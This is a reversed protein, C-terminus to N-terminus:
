LLLQDIKAACIFDNKTLGNVAHTTFHIICYDYGAEITPHHGEQNVIWAVANIFGITKQFGKFAFRRSISTQQDNSRWEPLQQLHQQIEAAHLPPQGGECPVCHGSSLNGM